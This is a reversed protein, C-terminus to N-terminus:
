LRLNDAGVQRLCLLHTPIGCLYLACLKRARRTPYALRICFPRAASRIHLFLPYLHRRHRQHFERCRGDPHARRLSRGHRHPRAQAATRRCAEGQYGRLLQHDHGDLCQRCQLVFGGRHRHHVAGDSQDRGARHVDAAFRRGKCATGLGASPVSYGAFRWAGYVVSQGSCLCLRLYM